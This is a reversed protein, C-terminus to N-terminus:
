PRGWAAVLREALEQEAGLEVGGIIQGRNVEARAGGADAPQEPARTGPARSVIEAVGAAEYEAIRRRVTAEDGVLAVHDILDDPIRAFLEKPDPRTRAFEVLEGYGADVFMQDYGPAALYGVFGRTLWDREEDTPDIAACLWVATNAIGRRRPAQRGDVTVMNLVM